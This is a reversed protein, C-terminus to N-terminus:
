LWTGAVGCAHRGFRAAVIKGSADITQDYGSETAELSAIRGGEVLVNTVRDLQQSPDIVRGNKILLSPM